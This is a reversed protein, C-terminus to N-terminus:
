WNGRRQEEQVESCVGPFLVPALELLLHRLALTPEQEGAGSVEPKRCVCAEVRFPQEAATSWSWESFKMAMGVARSTNREWAFDSSTDVDESEVLLATVGKNTSAVLDGWDKGLLLTADFDALFWPLINHKASLTDLNRAGNPFV